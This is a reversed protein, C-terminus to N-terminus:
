LVFRWNSLFGNRTSRIKKKARIAAADKKSSACCSFSVASLLILEQFLLNDLFYGYKQVRM